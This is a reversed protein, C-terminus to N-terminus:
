CCVCETLTTLSSSFPPFCSTSSRLHDWMNSLTRLSSSSSFSALHPLVTNNHFLQPQWPLLSLAATQNLPQPTFCCKLLLSEGAASIFIRDDDEDDDTGDNGGQNTPHLWPCIKYKYKITKKWSKNKKIPWLILMPNGMLLRSLVSGWRSVGSRCGQEM